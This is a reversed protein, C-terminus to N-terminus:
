RTKISLIKIEPYVYKNPVWWNCNRTSSLVKYDIYIELSDKCFKTDLEIPAYITDNIKIVWGCGDAAPNGYDLVLGNHYKSNQFNENCCSVILFISAFVILFSVKKM